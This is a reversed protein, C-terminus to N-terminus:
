GADGSRCEIFQTWGFDRQYKSCVLGAIHRPHWGLALMVRVLAASLHQGFCCIMQSRSRSVPVPRSFKWLSGITLKRGFNPLISSKRISSGM